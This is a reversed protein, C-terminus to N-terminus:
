GFYFVGWLMVTRGLYLIYYRKFEFLDVL